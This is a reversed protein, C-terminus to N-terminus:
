SLSTMVARSSADSKNTLESPDSKEWPDDFIRAEGEVFM